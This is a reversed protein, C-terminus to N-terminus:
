EDIVWKDITLRVVVYDTDHDLNDFYARALKETSFLMSPTYATMHDVAWIEKNKSM